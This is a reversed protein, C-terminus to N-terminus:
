IRTLLWTLFSFLAGYILICIIGNYCADLSLRNHKYLRYENFSLLLAIFILILPKM